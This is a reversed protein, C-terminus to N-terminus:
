DEFVTDPVPRLGAPAFHDGVINPDVASPLGIIVLRDCIADDDPAPHWRWRRGVAQLLASGGALDQLRLVGKIRLIGDPLNELCMELARRDLPHDAALIMTGVALAAADEEPPESQSFVTANANDFVFAAPVACDVTRLLQARPALLTLREALDSADDADVLDTKNLLILDAAALQRQLFQDPQALSADVVTVVSDLRVGATADAVQALGWPDAAGSAELLVLDPVADRNALDILARAMGGSLSCCVCGNSLSIADEAVERILAADINIEAIDNVMATIKLGHDATLLHRLLTTKGAGLAGAIVVVPLKGDGRAARHASWTEAEVMGTLFDLTDYARQYDEASAAAMTERETM